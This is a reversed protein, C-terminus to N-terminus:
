KKLSVREGKAVRLIENKQVIEKKDLLLFARGSEGKATYVEDNLVL